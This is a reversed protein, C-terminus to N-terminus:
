VKEHEMHEHDRTYPLACPGPGFNVAIDEPLSGRLDM